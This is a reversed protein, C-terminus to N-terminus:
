NGLDSFELLLSLINNGEIHTFRIKPSGVVDFDGSDLRDSFVERFIGRSVANELKTLCDHLFEFLIVINLIGNALDCRCNPGLLRDGAGHHDDCAWAILDQKGNRAPHAVGFHDLKGTRGRNEDGHM